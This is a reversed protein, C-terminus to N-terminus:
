AAIKLRIEARATDLDYESQVRMWFNADIDLLEELKLALAANVHRKRNLLDSLQSAHIGLKEAFFNKKLGRAALEKKLVDGPHLLIDTKIERGDKSLIVYNEMGRRKQNNFLAKAEVCYKLELITRNFTL